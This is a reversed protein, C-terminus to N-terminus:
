APALDEAPVAPIVHPNGEADLFVIDYVDKGDAGPKVAQVKKVSRDTVFMGKFLFVRTFNVAEGPRFRSM